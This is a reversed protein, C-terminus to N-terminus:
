FEYHANQLSSVDICHFRRLTKGYTRHAVTHTHSM